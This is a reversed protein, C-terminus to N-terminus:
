LISILLFLFADYFLFVSILIDGRLPELSAKRRGVCNAKSGIPSQRADNLLIKERRCIKVCM